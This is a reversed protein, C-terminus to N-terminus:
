LAEMARELMRDVGNAIEEPTNRIVVDPPLGIGEWSRGSGDFVEAVPIRYAWRNPLERNVTDSFAGTTTDGVHVIQPLELLALSFTEGASICYRDTLLVLPKDYLEADTNTIRWERMEEFDDPGPGIKYRTLMYLPEDDTFYSALLRGAEDEGGDNDRIDIILGRTDRLDAIMGDMVQRAFPLDMEPMEGWYMYGINGPLIGHIYTNDINNFETELYERSVLSRDFFYEGSDFLRAAPGSRFDPLDDRFTVLDIHGDDLKALMPVMVAYLDEETSSENLLPRNLNYEAIWDINKVRFNSYHQHYDKWFYHFNNLVENEEVEGLLVRDCSSFLVLFFAYFLLNRLLM